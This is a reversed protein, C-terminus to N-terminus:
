SLSCYYLMLLGFFAYTAGIFLINVIQGCTGSVMKPDSSGISFSFTWHLTTGLRFGDADCRNRSACEKRLVDLPDSGPSKTAMSRQVTEHGNASAHWSAGVQRECAHVVAGLCYRYVYPQMLRQRASIM